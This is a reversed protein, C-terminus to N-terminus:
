PSGTGSDSTPSSHTGGDEGPPPSTASSKGESEEDQADRALLGAIKLLRRLKGQSRELPVAAIIEAFAAADGDGVLLAMAEADKRRHALVWYRMADAPTWERRVTWVRGFVSVEIPALPIPTDDDLDLVDHGGQTM